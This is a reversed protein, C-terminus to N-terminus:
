KKMPMKDKMVPCGKMDKGMMGDMKMGDHKMMGGMGMDCKYRMAGKNMGGYVLLVIALIAIIAALITGILKISGSEKSAFTYLIYAFGLISILILTSGLCMMM